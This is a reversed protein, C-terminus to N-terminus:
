LKKNIEVVSYKVNLPSLIEKIIISEGQTKSYIDVLKVGEGIYVVSQIGKEKLKLTIEGTDINSPITVTIRWLKEKETKDLIGRAIYVGIINTLATCILVITMSQGSVMKVIGAYFTYSVTNIIMAVTPSAKVNLISRMTGLIVNVLNLIFFILISLFENGM